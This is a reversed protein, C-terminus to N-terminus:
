PESHIYYINIFFLVQEDLNNNQVPRIHPSNRQVQKSSGSYACRLWEGEQDHIINEVHGLIWKKQSKSFVEIADGM